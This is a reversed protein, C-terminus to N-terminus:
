KKVHIFTNIEKGKKGDGICILMTSNGRELRYFESEKSLRRVPNPILVKDKYFSIESDTHGVIRIRGCEGANNFFFDGDSIEKVFEEATIAPINRPVLKQLGIM